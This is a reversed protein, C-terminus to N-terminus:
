VKTDKEVYKWSDVLPDARHFQKAVGRFTFQACKQFGKRCAETDNTINGNNTWMNKDSSYFERLFDGKRIDRKDEAGLGTYPKYSTSNICKYSLKM